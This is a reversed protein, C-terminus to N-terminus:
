FRNTNRRQRRQTDSEGSRRTAQEAVSAPTIGLQQELIRIRKRQSEIVETLKAITDLLESIAAFPDARLPDSSVENSNLDPRRDFITEALDLQRKVEPYDALVRYFTKHSVGSEAIIEAKAPRTSRCNRYVAEIAAIVADVNAQRAM